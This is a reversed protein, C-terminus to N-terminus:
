EYKPSLFIVICQIEKTILKKFKGSRIATLFDQEENHTLTKSTYKELLILFNERNM